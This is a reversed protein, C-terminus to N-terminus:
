PMWIFFCPSIFPSFCCFCTHRDTNRWNRKAPQNASTSRRHHKRHTNRKFADLEEGPTQVNKLDFNKIHTWGTGRISWFVLRRSPTRSIPNSGLNEETKSVFTNPCILLVSDTTGKVPTCSVEGQQGQKTEISSCVHHRSRWGQVMLFTNECGWRRRSRMTKRLWDSYDVSNWEADTHIHTCRCVSQPPIPLPPPPAVLLHVHLNLTTATFSRRCYLSKRWRSRWLGTSGCTSCETQFVIIVVDQKWTEECRVIRDSNIFSRLKPSRSCSM